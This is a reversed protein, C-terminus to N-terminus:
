ELLSVCLPECGRLGHLHSSTILVGVECRRCPNAHMDSWLQSLDHTYCCMSGESSGKLSKRKVTNVPLLQGYKLRAPDSRLVVNVHALLM